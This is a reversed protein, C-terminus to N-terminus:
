IQGGTNQKNASEAVKLADDIKNEKILEEVKEVTKEDKKEEIQGQEVTLVSAFIPWKESLNTLFAFLDSSNQAKDINDLIYASIVSAEEESVSENQLADALKRAIRDGLKNKYAQDYTDM